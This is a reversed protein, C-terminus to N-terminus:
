SAKITYKGIEREDIIEVNKLDEIEKQGWHNRGRNMYFQESNKRGIRNCKCTLMTGKEKEISM